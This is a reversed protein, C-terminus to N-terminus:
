KTEGKREKEKEKKNEKKRGYEEQPPPSPDVLMVQQQGLHKGTQQAAVLFVNRLLEHVNIVLASDGLGVAAFMALDM